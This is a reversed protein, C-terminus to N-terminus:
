SEKPLIQAIDTLEGASIHHTLVTFVARARSYGIWREARIRAIREATPLLAAAQAAPTLHSLDPATGWLEATMVM